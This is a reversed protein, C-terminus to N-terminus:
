YYDSKKKKKKGGLCVPMDYFLVDHSHLTLLNLKQKNVQTEQKEGMNCNQEM